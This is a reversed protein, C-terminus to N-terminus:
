KTVFEIQGITCKAGTVRQLGKTNMQEVSYIDRNGSHKLQIDFQLTESESGAYLHVYGNAHETSVRSSMAVVGSSEQSRNRIVEASPGLYVYSTEDGNKIILDVSRGFVRGSKVLVTEQLSLEFDGNECHLHEVPVGTAFVSSAISNLLVFLASKLINM